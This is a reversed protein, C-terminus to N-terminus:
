LGPLGAVLGSCYAYLGPHGQGSPVQKRCLDGLDCLSRLVADVGQWQSGRSFLDIGPQALLLRETLVKTWAAAVTRVKALWRAVTRESVGGAAVSCARAAIRVVPWKRVWRRLVGERVLSVFQAYPKLFDPLVAATCRCGPCRWRYIPIRHVHHYTVATRWYRGHKHM